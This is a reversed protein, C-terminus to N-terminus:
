AQKSPGYSRLIRILEINYGELLTISAVYAKVVVDPSDNPNLQSIPLVPKPPIKPTPCKIPVPVQVTKPM